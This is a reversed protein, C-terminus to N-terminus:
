SLSSLFQCGALARLIGAGRVWAVKMANSSYIGACGVPSMLTNERM